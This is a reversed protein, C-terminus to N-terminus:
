GWNIETGLIKVDIRLQGAAVFGGGSKAAKRRRKEDIESILVCIDTVSVCSPGV